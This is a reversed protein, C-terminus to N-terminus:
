KQKGFVNVFAEQMNHRGLEKHLYNIETKLAQIEKYKEAKIEKIEENKARIEALRLHEKENITKHFNDERKKLEKYALFGAVLLGLCFGTFFELSAMSFIFNLISDFM